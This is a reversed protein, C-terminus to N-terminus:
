SRIGFDATVITAPRNAYTGPAEASWVSSIGVQRWRPNLLNARHPASKMWLEVAAKADLEPSAWVLNEGVMWLRYGSAAYYGQIRKWFTSGDASDHSFYGDSAMSRSHSAAAASLEPSRRLPALKHQARIVNIEHLIAGDLSQVARVQTRSKASTGAPVAVLLLGLAAALCAVLIRWRPM